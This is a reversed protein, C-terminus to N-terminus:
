VLGFVYYILGVGDVVVIGVVICEVFWLVLCFIFIIEDVFM